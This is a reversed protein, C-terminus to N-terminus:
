KLFAQIEPTALAKAARQADGPNDGTAQAMEVGEVLIRCTYVSGTQNILVDIMPRPMPSTDDSM